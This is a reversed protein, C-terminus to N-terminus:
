FSLTSYVLEFYPVTMHNNLFIPIKLQSKFTALSPMNKVHHSFHLCLLFVPVTVLGQQLGNSKHNIKIHGRESSINQNPWKPVATAFLKSYLVLSRVSLKVGLYRNLSIMVSIFGLPCLGLVFVCHVHFNWKM